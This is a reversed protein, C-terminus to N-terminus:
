EPHQSRLAQEAPPDGHGPCFIGPAAGGDVEAEQQCGGGGVGSRRSATGVLVPRLLGPLWLLRIDNSLGTPFLGSCREESGRM